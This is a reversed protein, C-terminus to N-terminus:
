GERTLLQAVKFWQSRLRVAADRARKSRADLEGAVRRIAAAIAGANNRTYEAADLFLARAAEDESLILPKGAAIAEYAGCVICAKMETLDLVISAKRMEDWYAQESLFGTFVVNEPIKTNAWHKSPRGTVFFRAEPVLLAANIIEALPEDPAFTSVVLVELDVSLHGSLGAPPEPIQDFLVFSRGGHQRVQRALMENTVITLDSHRHLWRAVARMAYNNYNYPRVAENHADIILRFRFVPRVLLCLVAAGVSPNQVILNTPKAEALFALTRLSLLIYRSLGTRKTQFVHLPMKLSQCLSQTRRHAFWAVAVWGIPASNDDQAEESM